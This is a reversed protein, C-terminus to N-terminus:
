GGLAPPPQRAPFTAEWASMLRILLAEQGKGALAALGFPRGNYELYSLPMGAIPYGSGTAFSTIFGDATGIIVNVNYTRFIHDVGLDRTVHRFHAHYKNYEAQTLNLDQAAQFLDQRPHHPPLEQEKHQENFDIVDQLSRVKSQALDDLYANLDRKLDANTVVVESNEGDLEFESVSVLPVNRAFTKVQTQILDYATNTDRLVQEDAEPIPKVMEPPFRWEIPDLVGVSIGEWSKTLYKTYSEAEDRGTIVDLLVALDYVSKTMPGASDFNRSIPVMGDSPVFGITPKITYLAARGAPCILSGDTEEGIAIPAYGASVAVASGTSSGGPNSHGASGDDALIGGRVYASQTQGGVASWGSPMLSGRGDSFESLNSKGLIIAGAALLMDVIKANRRPKSDLLALSGATTGLGLSLHTAVSDKLIIPIGHLPGRIKGAEREKDLEQARKMLIERPTTQIMAHLYDDHKDIQDIYRNVLSQSTIRNSTLLEGLSRVDAALLDIEIDPLSEMMAAVQTGFYVCLATIIISYHKYFKM